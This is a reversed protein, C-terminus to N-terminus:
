EMANCQMTNDQITKYQITKYQVTKYQMVNCQMTIYQILYICTCYLVICYLFICYLVICHLAIFHLVICCLIVINSCIIHLCAANVRFVVDSGAVRVAHDLQENSAIGRCKIGKEKFFCKISRSNFGRQESYTTELVDALDEVTNEKQSLFERIFREDEELAAM